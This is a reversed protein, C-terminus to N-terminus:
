HCCTLALAGVKIDLQLKLQPHILRMWQANDPEPVWGSKIDGEPLDLAFNLEWGSMFKALTEAWPQSLGLPPWQGTPGAATFRPVVPPGERSCLERGMSCFCELQHVDHDDIDDSNLDLLLDLDHRYGRRLLSLICSTVYICSGSQM